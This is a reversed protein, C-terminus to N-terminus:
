LSVTVSLDTTVLQTTPVSRPFSNPLSRATITCTGPAYGFVNLNGVVDFVAMAVSSNSSVFEVYSNVDGNRSVLDSWTVTTAISEASGSVVTITPSAYTVSAPRVQLLDILNANPLDPVKFSWLQDDEGALMLFFEGGRVLDMVVYGENDTHFTMASSAVFDRGVLKPMKKSLDVEASIRILANAVPANMYNMFRGVCRCLLLDRPVGFLPETIGSFSFTSIGDPEIVRIPYPGGFMVDAKYLRVQYMLGVDSGAVDFYTYGLTDTAGSAVFVSTADYIAVAVGSIPLQTASDTVAIGIRV